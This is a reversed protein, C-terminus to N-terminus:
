AHVGDVLDGNIATPVALLRQRLDLGDCAVLLCGARVEGVDESLVAGAPRQPDGGGSACGM